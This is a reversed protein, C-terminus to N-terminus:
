MLSMQRVAAANRLVLWGRRDSKDITLPEHQRVNHIGVLTAFNKDQRADWFDDDACIADSYHRKLRKCQYTDLPVFEASSAEFSAVVPGATRKLLVLDGPKIRQYPAILNKSFRSEITKTGNLIYSLFPEVMIALHVSRTDDDFLEALDRWSREAEVCDRLQALIREEIV